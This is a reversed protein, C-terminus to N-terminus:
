AKRAMLDPYSLHMHAILDHSVQSYPRFAWPEEDLIGVARVEYIRQAFAEEEVSLLYAGRVHQRMEALPPLEGFRAYNVEFGAVYADAEFKARAEGRTVYGWLFSLNDRWFQHVHEVEHGAIVSIREDPSLDSPEYIFPGITTAFEALFDTVNLRFGRIEAVVSLLDGLVRMEPQDKSWVRGHWRDVSWKVIENAEQATAARGPIM